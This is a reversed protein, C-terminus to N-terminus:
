RWKGTLSAGSRIFSVGLRRERYTCDVACFIVFRSSVEHDCYGDTQAQVPQVQMAALISKSEALSLGMSEPFECKDAPRRHGNRSNSRERNNGDVGVLDAM